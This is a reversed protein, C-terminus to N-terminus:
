EAHGVDNLNKIDQESRMPLPFLHLGGDIILYTGTTYGSLADSLLLVAAPGIEKTQGVRRLPIQQILKDLTDGTVHETLKTVYHGPVIMNVRIGYPALELALNETVVRLGTKSVRYALEEYAMTFMSTSGIILISGCKRPIMHRAVERCALVCSTLNTDITKHWSATDLKTIPQHWAGAANNVYLDLRGFADIASAVMTVVQDERTVDVRLPVVKVGTSRLQEIGQPDPDRSAIALNVGEQALAEAIALGIGTAGGTILASKGRLQADM